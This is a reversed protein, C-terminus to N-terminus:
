SRQRCVESVIDQIWVREVFVRGPGKIFIFDMVGEGRRKKDQKLLRQLTRLPIKRLLTPLDGAGSLLVSMEKLFSSPLKFCRRSWELAFRLGYLVAEEHPLGFYLELAHGMTHGLNLLVRHAKLEYPDSEVIRVKADVARPLLRWLLLKQNKTKGYFDLFNKYFSGGEILSIKLMEAQICQPELLLEKVIFVARPFLYTGLVNKVQGANLATKGGHASDMASLWTTPIHVVPRGRKYVSALFGTFDGVSGGGMGVFGSINQGASRKLVNKIHKPFNEVNKLEEGASVFYVLSRKKNSLGHEVVQSHSPLSGFAGGKEFSLVRSAPLTQPVPLTRPAPLTQRVPEAQGVSEVRGVSGAQGLDTQNLYTQVTPLGILKKDCVIFPEGKVEGPLTLKKYISKKSPLKSSFFVGKKKLKDKIAQNNM